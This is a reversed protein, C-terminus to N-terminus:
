GRALGARESTTQQPQRPMSRQVDEPTGATERRLNPLTKQRPPGNAGPGRRLADATAITEAQRRLYADYNEQRTAM